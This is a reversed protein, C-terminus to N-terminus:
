EFNEDEYDQKLVPEEAEAPTVDTAGITVCTEASTADIAVCSVITGAFKEEIPESRVGILACSRRRRVRADIRDISAFILDSNALTKDSRAGTGAFRAVIQGSKAVTRAYNGVIPRRFHVAM